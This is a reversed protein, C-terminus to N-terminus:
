RLVAAPKWDGLLFGGWVCVTILIYKIHAKFGYKSFYAYVEAHIRSPCNNNLM